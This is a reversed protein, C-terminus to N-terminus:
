LSIKCRGNFPPGDDLSVLQTQSRQRVEMLRSASSLDRHYNSSEQGLNTICDDCVICWGLLHVVLNITFDAAHVDLDFGTGPM